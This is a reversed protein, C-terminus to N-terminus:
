DKQLVFKFTIKGVQLKQDMQLPLPDFRWTQLATIAARELLEDSKLVPVVNSVTGDPLVTFELKVPMEKNTGDPYRPLRGSLLRRSGKGGWDISYGQGAGIGGGSGGGAGGGTGPGVGRRLWRTPMNEALVPKSKKRKSAAIKPEEKKPVPIAKELDNYVHIRLLTFQHGPLDDQRGNQKTNGQPGFQIAEDQAGEGGGGGSGGIQIDEAQVNDGSHYSQYFLLGFIVFLHIFISIFASIFRIRKHEKDFYNTRKAVSLPEREDINNYKSNCHIGIL